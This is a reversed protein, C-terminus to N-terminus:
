VDIEDGTPASHAELLGREALWAEADARSEAVLRAARQQATETFERAEPDAKWRKLAGEIWPPEDGERTRFRALFEARLKRYDGFMERWTQWPVEHDGPTCGALWDLQGNIGLDDVTLPERRATRRRVPM